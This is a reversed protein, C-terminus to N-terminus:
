DRSLRGQWHLPHRRLHMIAVVLITEQRHQYIVGYPFRAVRCRRTRKSLVPWAEPQTVVRALTKKIEAAFEFGLGPCEDNYYAVADKFESAASQLFLVRM